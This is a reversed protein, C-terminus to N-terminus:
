ANLEQLPVKTDRLDATDVGETFSGYVETLLPRASCQSSETVQRNRSTVEMVGSRM